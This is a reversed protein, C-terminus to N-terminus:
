TKFQAQREGHTECDEHRRDETEKALRQGM